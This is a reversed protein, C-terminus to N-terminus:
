GRLEVTVSWIIGINYVVTLSLSFTQSSPVWWVWTRTNFSDSENESCRCHRNRRWRRHQLKKCCADAITLLSGSFDVDFVCSQSEHASLDCNSQYVNHTPAANQWQIYSLIEQSEEDPLTSICDYIAASDVCVAHAYSLQLGLCMEKHNGGTQWTVVLAVSFFQFWVPWM